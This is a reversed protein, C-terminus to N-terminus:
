SGNRLVKGYYWAHAKTEFHARESTGVEGIKSALMTDTNVFGQIKNFNIKRLKRLEEPTLKGSTLIM